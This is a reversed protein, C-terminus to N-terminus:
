HCGIPSGPPMEPMSPLKVEKSTDLGDLIMKMLFKSNANNRANLKTNIMELAAVAEAAVQGFADKDRALKILHAVLLRQNSNAIQNQMGSKLSTDFIADSISGLYSELSMQRNDRAHHHIIRALRDENLMFSLSHNASGEAAAIPDFTLSTYRDFTERDRGYGFAAPPILKLIDEPIELFAPDLTMLMAELADKQLGADVISNVVKQPDGKTMYTYNVGGILKAVGEVQYRHALYIPVLVNELRSYPTGSTISNEGFRELANKRLTSLRRLEEAPSAGNDWLHGYPHAGGVPRADRDSIFLYGDNISEDIIKKLEEKENKGKPFDQYGYIITRKDWDGIGVAYADSFDIQGEDTLKVVPHPYDMVSARDNYSAAFNHALGITHGIEHASLQRLRALALQLMPENNDDSNSYPSLLGQAILFDQRVRLSGLSVHGKIIEGTRPDRVSAGYSWGRTSRHVWQIVNYRVDLLDADEPLVKVQFADKYGAAEFAQNWWKGGDILASKVPEPTGPDLYYIIPEEAESMEAGPNKKKLRHRNIYKKEMNEHIPSAYDYFDTTNFGSFPHFARPEYNEDPLEIFSHHMRVTVLDPSPTVSRIYSGSPDGTFTVVADFESNKPFAKTSPMYIASKGKDLKYSGQKARKLRQTVKHADRMLFPTLDVMIKGAEEKEIKFGWLVSQAFAERVAKREAANNSEARYQYNPQVMLIKNGAREFKVIRTDGLQGRDLGIDNSGVGASLANVYLFETDLKSADLMIKGTSPDWEFDFYGEFNQVQAQTTLLFLSCLLTSITKM